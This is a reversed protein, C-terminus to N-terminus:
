YPLMKESLAENMERSAQQYRESLKGEKDKSPKELRSKIEQQLMTHLADAGSPTLLPSITINDRVRIMVPVIYAEHHFKEQYPLGFYKNGVIVLGDSDRFHVDSLTVVERVSMTDAKKLFWIQNDSDGDGESESFLVIRYENERGPILSADYFSVYDLKYKQMPLQFNQVVTKNDRSLTLLYTGSGEAEKRKLVLTHNNIKKEFVVHEAPTARNHHKATFISSYLMTLLGWLVLALTLAGLSFIIIKIVKWFKAM